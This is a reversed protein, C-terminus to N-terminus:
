FTYEIIEGNSLIVVSLDNMVIYESIAREFDNNRNRYNNMYLIRLGVRPVILIDDVLYRINNYTIHEGILLTNRNRIILCEAYNM